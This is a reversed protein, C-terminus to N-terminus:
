GEAEQCDSVRYFGHTMFLLSPVLLLIFVWGRVYTFVLCLSICSLSYGIQAVPHTVLSLLERGAQTLNGVLWRWYGTRESM